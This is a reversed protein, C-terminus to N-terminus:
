PVKGELVREYDAPTDLDCLISPDNVPVERTQTICSRIYQNTGEGIAFARIGAAHKWALLTPHGRHGQYTPVFISDAPYAHRAAILLRIVEPRLAPHDAPVLLWADESRPTLNQELWELGQEVTARMDATAQPLQLVHAGETRAVTGLEAVHPGLVVLTHEVGAQRMAVLVHALVARGAVTLALKPRGM